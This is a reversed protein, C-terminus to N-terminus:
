IKDHNELPGIDNKIGVQLMHWHEMDKDVSAKYMKTAKSMRTATFDHIVLTTKKKKKLIM